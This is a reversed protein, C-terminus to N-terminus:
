GLHAVSMSSNLIMDMRSVGPLHDDKQGNVISIAILFLARTLIMTPIEFLFLIFHPSAFFLLLVARSAVRM